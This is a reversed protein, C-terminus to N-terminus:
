LAPNELSLMRLYHISPLPIPRPLPHMRCIEDYEDRSEWILQAGDDLQMEEIKRILERLSTGVDYMHIKIRGMRGEHGTDPAALFRFVPPRWPYHEPFVIVIDWLVGEMDKCEMGPIRLFLRWVDKRGRVHFVYLGRCAAIEERIRKERWTQAPENMAAELVEDQRFDLAAEARECFAWFCDDLDDDSVRGGASGAWRSLSL